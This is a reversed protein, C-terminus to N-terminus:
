YSEYWGLQTKLFDLYQSNLKIMCSAAMSSGGNGGAAASWEYDCQHQKYSEFSKVAKEFLKITENRFEPEQEWSKIKNLLRAQEKEVAKQTAEAKQAICIRYGIQDVSDNCSANVDLTFLILLLPLLKM